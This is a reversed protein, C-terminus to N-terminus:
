AGFQLLVLTMSFVYRKGKPSLILFCSIIVNDFLDKLYRTEQVDTEKGNSNDGDTASDVNHLMMQPEMELLRNSGNEAFLLLITM